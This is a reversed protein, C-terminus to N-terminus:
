WKWFIVKKSKTKSLFVLYFETQMAALEGFAVHSTLFRDM